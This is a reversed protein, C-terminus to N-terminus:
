LDVNIPSSFKKTTLAVTAGVTAKKTKSRRRRQDDCKSGAWIQGTM